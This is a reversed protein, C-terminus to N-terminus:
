AQEATATAEREVRKTQIETLMALVKQQEAATPIVRFTEIAIGAITGEVEATMSEMWIKVKAYNTRKERAM